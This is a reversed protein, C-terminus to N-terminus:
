IYIYSRFWFILTLYTGCHFEKRGIPVQAEVCILILYIKVHQSKDEKGNM